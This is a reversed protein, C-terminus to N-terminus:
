VGFPNVMNPSADQPGSEHPPRSIVREEEVVVPQNKQELIQKEPLPMTKKQLHDQPRPWRPQSLMGKHPDETKEEPLSAEGQALQLLEEQSMKAVAAALDAPVLGNIFDIGAQGNTCLEVFLEEFAATQSFEETLQPSKIFRRGDESRVGYGLLIIEEFKRMIAANDRSRVIEKLQEDLGGSGSHVLNILERKSLNFYFDEVRPTGDYDVYSITKKLM